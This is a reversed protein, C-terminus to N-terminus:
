ARAAGSSQRIILETSLTVNEPVRGAIQELLMYMARRGIEKQPARITTLPPDMSQVFVIDDCGVLSIDDPIRLGAERIAKAAGIAMMDNTAFVATVEPTRDLLRIMAEYGDRLTTGFPYTGEILCNEQVPIGLQRLTEVLYNCRGAEESSRGVGYLCGINRHGMDFLYRALANLSQRYNLTVRCPGNLGGVIPIKHDLVEQALLLLDMNTFTIFIGDLGRQILNKLMERTINRAALISVIYGKQGAVELMGDTIDAYYPNRIDEVIIAIHYTTKTKLSRAVLNPTYHYYEVAEEVKTCLELSVHKSHNLVHTVTAVSVGARQAVDKRTAM